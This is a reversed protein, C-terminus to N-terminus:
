EEFTLSTFGGHTNVCLQNNFSKAFRQQYYEAEIGFGSIVLVGDRVLLTAARIKKELADWKRYDKPFIYPACFQLASICIEKQTDEKSESDDPEPEKQEDYIYKGPPNMSPIESEKNINAPVDSQQKEAFERSEDSSTQPIEVNETQPITAYQVGLLEYVKPKNVRYYMTAPVGKLREEIVGVRLCHRRATEQESRTLGTEDEWEKQSKYFWGEQERHRKSWYWAQSLFIGAVTSGTIRKFTPNYAIPRDLADDLADYYRKQKETM